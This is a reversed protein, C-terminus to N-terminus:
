PQAPQSGERRADGAVHQGFARALKDLALAGAETIQQEGGGIGAADGILKRLQTSRRHLDSLHERHIGAVQQRRLNPSMRARRRASARAIGMLWTTLTSLALQPSPQSRCKRWNEKVGTAAADM